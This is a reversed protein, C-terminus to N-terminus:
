SSSETFAEAFWAAVLEEHDRVWFILQGGRDVLEMVQHEVNDEELESKPLALVLIQTKIIDLLNEIEKDSKKFQEIQEQQSNDQAAIEGFLKKHIRRRRAQIRQELVEFRTKVRKCWDAAEEPKPATAILEEFQAIAENLANTQPTANM